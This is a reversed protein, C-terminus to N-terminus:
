THDAGYGLRGDVRVVKGMHNGVHTQCSDENIVATSHGLRIQNPCGTATDRAQVGHCTTTWLIFEFM